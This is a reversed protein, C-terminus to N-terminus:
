LSWLISGEIRYERCPQVKDGEVLESIRNFMTLRAGKRRIMLILNCGCWNTTHDGALEVFLPQIACAGCTLEPRRFIPEGM